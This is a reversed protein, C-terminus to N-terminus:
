PIQNFKNPQGQHFKYIGDFEYPTGGSVEVCEVWIWDHFFIGVRECFIQEAGYITSPASQIYLSCVRPDKIFIFYIM